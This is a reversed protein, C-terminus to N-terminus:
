HNFFELCQVFSDDGNPDQGNLLADCEEPSCAVVNQDPAEYCQGIPNEVDDCPVQQQNDDYCVDGPEGDDCPYPQQNADYCIDDDCPVENMNDDHCIDGPQGDDCPYPQQNDDYCIDGPDNGNFYEVCEEFLWPDNNPDVQLLIDCEEASCIPGVETELCEGPDPDVPDGGEFYEVCAVFADHVQPDDGHIQLLLDCEEASCIPGAETEICENPGPECAAPDQECPDCDVNGDPDEWCPTPHDDDGCSVRGDAQVECEVDATGVICYIRGDEGGYCHTVQIHEQDSLGSRQKSDDEGFVSCGALVFLGLVPLLKKM